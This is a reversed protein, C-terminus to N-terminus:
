LMDWYDLHKQLWTCYSPPLTSLLAEDLLSSCTPSVASVQVTSLCLTLDVMLDTNRQDDPSRQQEARKESVRSKM